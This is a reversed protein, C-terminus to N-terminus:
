SRFHSVTSVDVQCQCFLKTKLLSRYRIYVYYITPQMAQMCATWNDTRDFCSKCGWWRQQQHQQQQQSVDVVGAQGSTLNFQKNQGGEMLLLSFGKVALLFSVTQDTCDMLCSCTDLGPNKYGCISSILFACIFINVDRQKGAAAAAAQKGRVGWNTRDLM